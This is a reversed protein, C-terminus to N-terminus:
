CFRPIAAITLLFYMSFCHVRDLPSVEANDCRCKIWWPVGSKWGLHCPNGQRLLGSFVGTNVVDGANVLSSHIDTVSDSEAAEVVEHFYANAKELHEAVALERAYQRKPGEKSFSAGSILCQFLSILCVIVQVDVLDLAESVDLCSFADLPLWLTLM